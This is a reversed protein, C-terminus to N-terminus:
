RGVVAERTTGAHDELRPFGVASRGSCRADVSGDPRVGLARTSRRVRRWDRIQGLPAVWPDMTSLRALLDRYAAAAGPYGLAATLNPHWLGVWLGEVDRCRSALEVADDIWAEPREIGAYKSQARDMWILPMLDLELPQGASEDWAGLVDATGLRFGNRDPFGWTADYSFGAAVMERQTAGPRMRLYHQRVGPVASGSLRALRSRQEGFAPASRMTAFSGHLGVEHGHKALSALLERVARSEPVYTVDGARVSRLTPTGCIFFWTAAIRRSEELDLLAALARRVPSRGVALAGAAIAAAARRLEGKKLLEALRLGLFLPWWRMVDVDHTLAAAWRRGEPWPQLLRVPRRGAAAAIAARRLEAAALSIVPQRELGAAVLPNQSSPVREYRDVGTARQESGAGAVDTVVTLVTRPIRVEGDAVRMHWRAASCGAVDPQPVVADDVTLRVVDEADGELWLLRSLDILTELAFRERASLARGSPIAIV